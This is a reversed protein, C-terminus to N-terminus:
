RLNECYQPGFYGTVLALIPTFWTLSLRGITDSYAISSKHLSDKTLDTIHDNHFLTM